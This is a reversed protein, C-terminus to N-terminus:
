CIPMVCKTAFKNKENLWPISYKFLPFPFKILEDQLVVKVIPCLSIFIILKRKILKM